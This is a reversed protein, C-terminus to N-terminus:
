REGVLLSYRGEHLLDIVAAPGHFNNATSGFAAATADVFAVKVGNPDPLELKFPARIQTYVCREFLSPDTISAPRGSNIKQHIALEQNAEDTKGTRVLAQSLNYHAAPHEPEYQIVERFANIADDFQGLAQHARGLQFTVPNITRDIDKAAQLYKVAEQPKGLRLSACGAIYLAPASNPDQKLVEEAHLLAKDVQNALLSACALNLHADPHSPNLALAQELAAVAKDADARDY